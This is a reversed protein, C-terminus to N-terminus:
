QSRQFWYTEGGRKEHEALLVVSAVLAPVIWWLAFGTEWVIKPAHAYEGLWAFLRWVLPASAIGGAWSVAAAVWLARRQPERLNLQQARLSVRFQTREALGAPLAVHVTQLSGLAAATEQAFNACEACSHLHTTLWAHDVAAVGEIREQAILQRARDHTSANM